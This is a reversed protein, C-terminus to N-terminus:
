KVALMQFAFTEQIFAVEQPSTQLWFDEDGKLHTLKKRYAVMSRELLIKGPTMFFKASATKSSGLVTVM